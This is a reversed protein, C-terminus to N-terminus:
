LLEIVIRKPGEMTVIWILFILLESLLRKYLLCKPENLCTQMFRDQDWNGLGQVGCCVIEPLESRRLLDM